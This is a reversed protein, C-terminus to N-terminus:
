GGLPLLVRFQTGVGPESAVEISGNHADVISKTISLGLGAGGSKRTRSSESRYFREFLQPIHEAAIGTGNDSVTLQAHSGSVGLSLSISGTDSDTHQVANLFLNLVIQKLKDAHYRGTVPNGDTEIQVSRSGALLRLQPEMETLLLDLRVPALVLEPAQDLKVITLLDEVLKNIRRSELGMSALSRNLQEPSVAAGRQLVEIFGHISTLPTRLEHSADAIFRRMRETTRREAEFSLELRALMGNFAESLRDIELQGQHAPLRIDLNGADTDSAAQVVRSLPTLTKRLLPLYLSLGAALALVALSIFIALQTFLLKQLSATEAGAQVMGAARNRPDALRLVVLQEHGNVDDVIRYSISKRSLLEAKINAYQQATLHPSALEPNNTLDDVVGDNGVFAFSMGPQYFVPAQPRQKPPEMRPAASKGERDDPKSVSVGFWDMPMSLLQAGLTNAKNEYVFDKMLVYQLVGILLLLAALLLLTRSLLQYRLSSPAAFRMIRKMWPQKM